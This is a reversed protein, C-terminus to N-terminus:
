GSAETAKASKRRTLLSIIAIAAGAGVIDAALDTVSADRGAVFSQHYEDSLGYLAAIGLSLWRAKREGAKFGRLLAFYWVAALGAFAIGHLVYDPLGLPRVLRAAEHGPLSSAYFIVAMYLLALM